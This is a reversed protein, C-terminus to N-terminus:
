RVILEEELNTIYNFEDQTIKKSNLANELVEKSVRNEIYMRKLIKTARDGIGEKTTLISKLLNEEIETLVTANYKCEYIKFTNIWDKTRNKISEKIEDTDEVVGVYEDYVYGQTLMQKVNETLRVELHDLDNPCSNYTIELPKVEGHTRM